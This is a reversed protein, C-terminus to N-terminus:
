PLLGSLVTCIPFTIYHLSLSWEDLKTKMELSLFLAAFLMGPKKDSRGRGQDTCVVRLPMSSNLNSNLWWLYYLLAIYTFTFSSEVRRLIRWLLVVCNIDYHSIIYMKWKESGSSKSTSYIMRTTPCQSFTIVSFHKVTAAAKTTTTGFRFEQKSM